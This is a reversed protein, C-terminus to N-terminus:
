NANTLLLLVPLVLPNITDQFGLRRTRQGGVQSLLLSPEIAKTVFVILEPRM